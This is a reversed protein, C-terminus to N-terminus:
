VNTSHTMIQPPALMTGNMAVTFKAKFRQFLAVDVYLIKMPHIYALVSYKILGKIYTLTAELYVLWCPMFVM